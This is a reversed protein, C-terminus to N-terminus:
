NWKGSSLVTSTAAAPLLWLVAIVGIISGDLILCASESKEVDIFQSNRLPLKEFKKNQAGSQARKM